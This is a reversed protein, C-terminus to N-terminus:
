SVVQLVSTKYSWEIKHGLIPDVLAMHFASSSRVGGIAPLTGCLMATAGTMGAGRQLQRLPLISTLSGDQYLVRRGDEVIWSKLRLHDLHPEVERFRWLTDAVPKACIQKSAAVSHTELARDTHDSALGLWLEGDQKLLFPEAEGSTDPGLAQIERDQTLLPPSCQYFLPVDSPPPVGIAALEEIHHDVIARDRGTWGAVILRTPTCTLVGNATQFQM